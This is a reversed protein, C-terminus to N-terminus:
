IDTLVLWQVLGLTAGAIAGALIARVPTTVSGVLNALLGAIPFSFFTLVWFLWFRCNMSLEKM